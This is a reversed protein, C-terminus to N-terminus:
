WLNKLYEVINILNMAHSGKILIIDNKRLLSKLFLHTDEENNFVYINDVNYNNKILEDYIYKINEGVLIIIDINKNIIYKGIKRHIEETYDGLELIDGILLIKRKFKSKSIMDIVSVMSDYSANYTDNILTTENKLLIQELRNKSLKFEKIGNIIDKNDINLINACAISFLSNYIFAESGVNIEIKTDNVYFESNFVNDIIKTAQYNSKNNIGVTIVNIKKELLKKEKNLLDNDYNIILTGNNNMGDLIELKAKLINERSGLNGIHATGINTIISITPEAIKSLLSIEGFHNMGMELVLANHDKLKLITLPLGIHNNLNGETKLVKYKKSLVSAVIDKTSTKGVSGTIAIVPINYLKRKYHALKQISTISNEVLIVGRNKYKNFNFNDKNFYKKELICFAAGKDFAEEYFLNGNFNDGKIGIYIDNENITRTDKSFNICEFDSNGIFLEGNCVDIIDKVKINKM